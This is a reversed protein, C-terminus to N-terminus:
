VGEPIRQRISVGRKDVADVNAGREILLRVIERKRCNVARRLPTQGNIDVAEIDARNDLLVTAADVHGRRACMHLPTCRKVNDAINPDAGAALLGRVIDVNGAGNCAAYLPTHGYRDVSNPDSGLALLRDVFASAPTSAAYALITGYHFQEKQLDPNSKISQIAAEIGDPGCLSGVVAVMHALASGKVRGTGQAYSVHSALHGPEGFKLYTHVGGLAMETIWAPFEEMFVPVTPRQYDLPAGTNVLEASSFEFFTTLWERCHKPMDVQGLAKNMNRLWANRERAGIKFRDHAEALSLFPTTAAYETPGGTTQAIYLALSEVACHPVNPFLKKLVADNPLRAYFTKSLRRCGEVGGIETFIDPQDKM